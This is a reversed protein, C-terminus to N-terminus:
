MVGLVVVDSHGRGLLEVKVRSEVEFLGLIRVRLWRACHSRLMDRDSVDIGYREHM